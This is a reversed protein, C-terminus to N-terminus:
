KDLMKIVKRNIKASRGRTVLFLVIGLFQWLSLNWYIKLIKRVVKCVMLPKNAKIFWIICQKYHNSMIYKGCIDIVDKEYKNWLMWWGMAPRDVNSIRNTADLYMMALNEDIYGIEYRKALKFCLDDDQSAPLNEDFMGVDYLCEKRAAIVGTPALYGQLLIDKYINGKLGFNGGCPYVGVGPEVISLRSYVMGYNSNSMFAEYQCLLTAETYVDDSDLFSIYEGNAHVIGTNRAGCAGKRGENLIYRFRKDKLIYQEVIEKTNDISFDDVVICEWDTYSQTLVSDLARNILNARNYTPIVITFM